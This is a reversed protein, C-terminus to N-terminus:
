VDDNRNNLFEIHRAIRYVDRRHGSITVGGDDYEVEIMDEYFLRMFRTLKNKIRFTLIGNEEKELEYGVTNFIKVINIREESFSKM